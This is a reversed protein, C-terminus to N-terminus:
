PDPHGGLGQILSVILARPPAAMARAFCLFLVVRVCTKPTQFLNDSTALPPPGVGPRWSGAVCKNMTTRMLFLSVKKRSFLFLGAGKYPEKRKNSDVLPNRAAAFFLLINKRSFLLM